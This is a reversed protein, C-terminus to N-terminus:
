VSVRVEPAVPSGIPKRDFRRVPGSLGFFLENLFLQVNEDNSNAYVYKEANSVAVQNLMVSQDIGLWGSKLRLPYFDIFQPKSEPVDDLVVRLSAENQVATLCIKPTLPFLIRLAPEHFGVGLEARAGRDAWMVVPNDSNLLPLTSRNWCLIWTMGCLWKELFPAQYVTALQPDNPGIEIGRRSGEDRFVQFM